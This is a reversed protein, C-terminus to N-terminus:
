ANYNRLKDEMECLKDDLQSDSLEPYLERMTGMISSYVTPKDSELPERRMYNTMDQMNTVGGAALDKVYAGVEEKPLELAVVDKLFTPTMKISCKDYVANVGLAAGMLGYAVRDEDTLKDVADSELKVEDNLYRLYDEVGEFDSPRRDAAEMKMGLEEPSDDGGVGLLKAVTGVVDCVNSLKALTAEPMILSMAFTAIPLLSPGISECVSKIREGIERGVGSLLSLGESLAGSLASGISSCASGVVSCVGSLCGSVFSGVSSCVGCVFSLFGM